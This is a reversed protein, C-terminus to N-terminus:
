QRSTCSRPPFDATQKTRRWTMANTSRANTAFRTVGVGVLVAAWRPGPDQDHAAAHTAGRANIEKFPDDCRLAGHHVEVGCGRLRCKGCHFIGSGDSRGQKPTECKCYGDNKVILSSSEQIKDKSTM